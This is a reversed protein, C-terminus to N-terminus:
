RRLVVIYDGSLGLHISYGELILKRIMADTAAEGSERCHTELIILQIGSLDAQELLEIEGGEIDCILVNAAHARIEDELCYVPIRVTKIIGSSDPSADLRSSWFAKDIYFDVTEGVGAAKRRNKLVGHRSTIQSLSNRSFNQRADEVIDPNADFTLVNEPGVILAATMSVIGIATGAEIVRDSPRVLEATLQRERREYSGNDLSAVIPAAYNGTDVFVNFGDITSIHGERGDPIIWREREARAEDDAIRERIDPDFPAGFVQCENFHLWGWGELQVRVFRAPQDGRIEAVYPRLDSDGFVTGDIKRYFTVWRHGDLSRLISFHRLRQAEHQRNYIVIRRILFEEGLDVQWWPNQERDTHFGMEGSINGNNAGRADEEPLPSSSWESTSSQLAPKNMALNIVYVGGEVRLPAKKGSM